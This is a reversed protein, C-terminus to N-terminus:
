KFSPLIRLANKKVSFGVPGTGIFEGDAEVGANEPIDIAINEISRYQVRDDEIRKGKRLAPLYNLYDWLTVDGIIVLNLLGDAPDALPAIALGSGFFRGNAVIIAKAKGSWSWDQTSCNININRYHLFTQLISLFFTLNAGLWKSRRNVRSVVAAGIGADAINIFIRESGGDLTLAGLDISSYTGIRIAELLSALSPASPWTKSWDNATGEPLLGAIVDPYGAQMIGHVVESMTGDGGVAIIHTCGSEALNRATEGAMGPKTYVIQHTVESLSVLNRDIEAQFKRARAARGHVVFGIHPVAMTM